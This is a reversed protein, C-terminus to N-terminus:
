VYIRTYLMNLQKDKM